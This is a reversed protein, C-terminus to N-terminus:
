RNIFETTTMKFVEEKSIGLKTFAPVWSEREARSGM